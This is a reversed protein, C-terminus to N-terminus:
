EQRIKGMEVQTAALQVLAKQLAAVHDKLQLSKAMMQYSSTSLLGIEVTRDTKKM